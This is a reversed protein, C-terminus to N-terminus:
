GEMGSRFRTLAEAGDDTVLVVREMRAGIGIEYGGYCGPEVAFVM